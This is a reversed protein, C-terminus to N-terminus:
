GIPCRSLMVPTSKGATTAQVAGSPAPPAAGVCSCQTGDETSRITGGPCLDWVPDQMGQPCAVSRRPGGYTSYPPRTPRDAPIWCAGDARYAVKEFVTVNRVRSMADLDVPQDPRLQAEPWTPGDAALANFGLTGVVLAGVLMTRRDPM